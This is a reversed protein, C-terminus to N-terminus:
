YSRFDNTQPIRQSGIAAVKEPSPFSLILNNPCDGLESFACKAASESFM